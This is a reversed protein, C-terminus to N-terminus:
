QNWWEPEEAPQSAAKGMPDKEESEEAFVPMELTAPTGQSPQEAGLQTIPSEETEIFDATTVSGQQFPDGAVPERSASNGIAPISTERDPTAASSVVETQSEPLSSAARFTLHANDQPVAATQRPQEPMSASGVKAAAHRTTSWGPQSGGPAASQSAGVVAFGPGPSSREEPQPGAGQQSMAAAAQFPDGETQFPDDNSKFPNKVTLVQSESVCGITMVSTGVLLLLARSQKM